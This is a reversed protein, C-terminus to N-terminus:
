ASGALCGLGLATPGVLAETFPLGLLISRRAAQRIKEDPLGRLEINLAANWDRDLTFGCRLCSFVREKLPTHQVHECRFCTKSTYAPDVRIITRGAEAAKGSLVTTFGRWAADYISRRLSRSSIKTAKKKKSVLGKINLDEIVITEFENVLPNVLAYVFHTRQNVVKEHRRALSRKAKEKEKTGAKQKQLKRQAQAIRKASKKFFRPNDETKGDSTTLFSKLGMDIGVPDKRGPLVALSPANDCSFSVFWKGSKTRRVTCTKLKGEIPRHLLIRVAGIGSLSLRGGKFSFGSQPYTFSDYRGQDKFRPYGPKEGNKVRRFFAQFSLDVRTAVNQLVQSHVFALAPRSEKLVPLTNVQDYRSPGIGVEQYSIKRQDLLHNYLWRCEELTDDLFKQQNSTPYIRYKFTKKM